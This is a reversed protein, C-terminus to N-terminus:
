SAAAAPRQRSARSGFVRRLTAAHAGRRGRPLTQVAAGVHSDEEADSRLGYGDELDVRLDEIPEALLKARVRDVIATADAPELGVLAGFQVATGGHEDLADLAASGWSAAPDDSLKDAPVYVTHVPQRGAAPGPYLRTLREDSDALEADVAALFSASLM